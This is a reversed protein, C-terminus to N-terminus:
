DTLKQLRMANQLDRAFETVTAHRKRADPDTAKKEVQVLAAKAEKNLTQELVSDMLILSHLLVGLSYVDSRVQVGEGRRIEPSIFDKEGEDVEPLDDVPQGLFRICAVESLYLSPQTPQLEESDLTALPMSKPMSQRTLMATEPTFCGLALGKQHLYEMMSAAQLIIHCRDRIIVNCEKRLRGRRIMQLIWALLLQGLLPPAAVMAAAGVMGFSTGFLLSNAYQRRMKERIAACCWRSLPFDDEAPEQMGWPQIHPHRIKKIVGQLVADDQVAVTGLQESSATGSRTSLPVTAVTIERTLGIDKAEEILDVLQDMNAYREMFLAQRGHFYMEWDDELKVDDLYILLINKEKEAAYFIELECTPSKVYDKSLLAIFWNSKRVRQAIERRWGAGPGIGEEDFWLRYKRSQMKEILPDTKSINDHSYSVFVFPEKGKYSKPRKVATM